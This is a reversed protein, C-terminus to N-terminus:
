SAGNIINGLFYYRFNKTKPRRPQVWPRQPPKTPPETAEDATATAEDAAATAEHLACHIGSDDATHPSQRRSRSSQLHHPATRVTRHSTEIKKIFINLIKYFNKLNESFLRKYKGIFHCRFAQCASYVDTVQLLAAARRSKM